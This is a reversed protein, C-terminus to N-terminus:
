SLLSKISLLSPLEPIQTQAPFSTNPRNICVQNASRNLTYNPMRLRETQNYQEIQFPQAPINVNNNTILPLFPARQNSQLSNIPAIFNDISPLKLHQIASDNQDSRISEIPYNQNINISNRATATLLPPKYYKNPQVLPPMTNSLNANTLTSLSSPQGISNFPQYSFPKSLDANLPLQPPNLSCQLSISSNTTVQSPMMPQANQPTASAFPVQAILSSAPYTYSYPQPPPNPSIKTGSSNPIEKSEGTKKPNKRNPLGIMRGFEYSAYNLMSRTSQKDPLLESQNLHISVHTRNINIHITSLLQPNRSRRGM